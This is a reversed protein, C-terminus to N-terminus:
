AAEFSNSDPHHAIGSSANWFQLPAVRIGEVTAGKPLANILCSGCLPADDLEALALCSCNDCFIPPLNMMISEYTM